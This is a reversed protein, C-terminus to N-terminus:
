QQDLYGELTSITTAVMDFQLPRILKAAKSNKAIITAAEFYPRHQGMLSVLNPRYAHERMVRVLELGGLPAIEVADGVALEFIAAIPLPTAVTRRPDVYYKAMDSRVAGGRRDLAALGDIASDWLKHRRGDPAVMPTGDAAFSIACFDDAVHDHGAEVLAAALTSKGAGSPGCFLVAADGIRVASAHLLVMGRQHLLAGFGTGGLYLAMDDALADPLPDYLMTTGHRMSMRMLDAIEFNLEHHVNAMAAPPLVARAITVDAAGPHDDLSPGPLLGPMPLDSVVRLGAVTYVHQTM